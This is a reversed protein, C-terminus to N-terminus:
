FHVSPSGFGSEALEDAAAKDADFAPVDSMSPGWEATSGTLPTVGQGDSAGVPNAKRTVQPVHPNKPAGASESCSPLL